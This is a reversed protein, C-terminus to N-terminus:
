KIQLLMELKRKRSQAGGARLSKGPKLTKKATKRLPTEKDSVDSM